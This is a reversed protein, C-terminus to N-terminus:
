LLSGTLLWKVIMAGVIFPVVYWLAALGLIAIGDILNSLLKNM